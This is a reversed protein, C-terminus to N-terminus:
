TILKLNMFLNGSNSDFYTLMFAILFTSLLTICFSLIITKKYHKFSTKLQKALRKKKSFNSKLEVDINSNGRRDYIGPLNDKTFSISQEIDPKIPLPSSAKENSIKDYKPLLNWM